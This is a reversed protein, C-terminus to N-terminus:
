SLAKASLWVAGEASPGSRTKRDAAELPATALVRRLTACPSTPEEVAAVKHRKRQAKESCSALCCRTM